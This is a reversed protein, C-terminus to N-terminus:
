KWSTGNDVARCKAAGCVDSASVLVKRRCMSTPVPTSVYKEMHEPQILLARGRRLKVAWHM